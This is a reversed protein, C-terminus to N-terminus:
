LTFYRFNYSHDIYSVLNSLKDVVGNAVTHCSIDNQTLDIPLDPVAISVNIGSNMTIRNSLSPLVKFVPTNALARNKRSFTKIPGKTSLEISKEPSNEAGDEAQTKPPLLVKLQKNESPRNMIRVGQLNLNISGANTESDFLDTNWLNANAHTPENKDISPSLMVDPPSSTQSAVPSPPLSERAQPRPSSPFSLVKKVSSASSASDRRAVSSDANSNMLNRSREEVKSSPSIELQVDDTSASNRKALEELTLLNYGVPKPTPPVEVGVAATTHKPSLTNTYEPQKPSKENESTSTSSPIHIKRQTVTNSKRGRRQLSEKTRKDDPFAFGSNVTSDVNWQNSGASKKLNLVVKDLKNGGQIPTQRSPGLVSHFM